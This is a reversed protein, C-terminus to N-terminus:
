HLQLTLINTTQSLGDHWSCNELHLILLVEREGWGRSNISWEPENLRLHQWESFVVAHMNFKGLGCFCIETM